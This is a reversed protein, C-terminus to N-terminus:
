ARRGFWRGLRAMFSPPHTDKPVITECIEHLPHSELVPDNEPPWGTLIPSRGNSVYRFPQVFMTLYKYKVGDVEAYVPNRDSGEGPRESRVYFVPEYDGKFLEIHGNLASFKSFKLYVVNDKKMIYPLGQGFVTANDRDLPGGFGFGFIAQQKIIDNKIPAWLTNGQPWEQTPPSLAVVARKFAMVENHADGTFNLKKGTIRLYQNFGIGGKNPEAKHSIWGIDNNDKDVIAIDAKTKINDRTEYARPSGKKSGALMRFHTVNKLVKSKNGGNDVIVMDVPGQIAENVMEVFQREYKRTDKSGGFEKQRMKETEVEIKGVIYQAVLGSAM